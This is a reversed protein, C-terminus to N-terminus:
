HIIAKVNSSLSLKGTKIFIVLGVGQIKMHHNEMSVPAETHIKKLRDSYRLYDTRFKDGTDSVIEVNGRIEFNKKDTDIEGSNGTLIFMRGQKATMKLHVQEMQVLNKSKRYQASKAKLDWQLDDQGVETYVFDSIRMDVNEPLMKLFNEKKEEMMRYVVFVAAGIVVFVVLILAVMRNKRNLKM